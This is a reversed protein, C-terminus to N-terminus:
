LLGRFDGIAVRYIPNKTAEDDCLVNIEDIVYILNRRESDSMRDIHGRVHGVM